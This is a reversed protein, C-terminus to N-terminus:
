PSLSVVIAGNVTQAEGQVKASFSLQWKDPKKWVPGNAVEFTYLGPQSPAVAKIPATMAAMGIPTMDARSQIIVANTVPKKDANHVIRVSVLSKSGASKPPGALEFSYGAMAATTTKAGKSMDMGAAQAHLAAVSILFLSGLATRILRVRHNHHHM